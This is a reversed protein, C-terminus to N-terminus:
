SISSDEMPPDDLPYIQVIFGDGKITQAIDVYDIVNDGIFDIADELDLNIFSSSDDIQTLKLDIKCQGNFLMTDRPCQTVCENKYQFKLDCNTVCKGQAVDVLGECQSVCQKNDLNISPYTDPCFSSCEPPNSPVLLPYSSQCSPVCEKELKILYQNNPDEDCSSVCKKTTEITLKDKPCKKVSNKGNEYYTNDCSDVCEYPDEQNKNSCEKM